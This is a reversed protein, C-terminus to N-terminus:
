LTWRAHYGRVDVHVFHKSPYRGIGGDRFVPITEALDALKDWSVYRSYIDAARGYLHQSYPSSGPLSANYEASRTGSSVIIPVNIKDRLEQLGRILTKNPIYLGSQPCRFEYESFNKSLDGM